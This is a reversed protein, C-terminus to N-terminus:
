ARGRGRGGRGRGRGRAQAPLAAEDAAPPEPAALAPLFLPRAKDRLAELTLGWNPRRPQGLSRELARALAIKTLSEFPAERLYAEEANGEAQLTYVHTEAAMTELTGRFRRLDLTGFLEELELEQEASTRGTKAPLAVGCSLMLEPITLMKPVVGPGDRSVRRVVLHDNELAEYFVLVLSRAVADTEAREERVALVKNEWSM